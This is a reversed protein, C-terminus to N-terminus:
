YRDFDRLDLGNSPSAVQPASTNHPSHALPVPKSFMDGENVTFFSMMQALSSAQSNLEESASAMEQASAANTQTVQDLQSMATSIQGLGIDQEKASNAIDKILTATEEIKPVVSSILEGARESIKVSDTTISSIEQAAIQSRKALKRVEAAVVAFGKGHEGARAAEIAANLALLNTQYVIDEIIGIKESITQMASVTKSVAEGGEISMSSAENALDNTKQANKASEAVSGSMEELAASTEELSSAQETAGQSLSQSSASVQTSAASIETVGSNVRSVITQLKEAMSNTATKILTYDGVFEKEIRVTMDGNAMGELVDGAENFLEQLVTATTNAAQKVADFDGQYETTIRESLNGNQLANLGYITDAFAKDVVELTDNVVATLKLYDGSMGETTVRAKVNGKEIESYGEEYNTLLEQLKAATDNAAQKVVDFDGQYETTIRADFQGNQLANLGYITDAFADNVIKLFTNMGEIITAFDGQHKTTDLTINLEGRSVVENVINSDSILSELSNALDNVANKMQAYDGSYNSAVQVSFDGKALGNLATQIDRNAGNIIDLTSNFSNAIEAYGGELKRLDIRQDLTGNKVADAVDLSSDQLQTLNNAIDNIYKSLVSTHKGELNLDVNFDGKSLQELTSTLLEMDTNSIKAMANGKKKNKTKTKETAM